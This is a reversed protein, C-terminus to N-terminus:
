QASPQRCAKQPACSGAGRIACENTKQMCPSCDVTCYGLASAEQGESVIAESAARADEGAATRSASSALCVLTEGERVAEAAQAPAVPEMMVASVLVSLVLSVTKMRKHM